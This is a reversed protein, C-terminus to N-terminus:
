NNGYRHSEKRQFAKAEGQGGVPNCTVLGGIIAHMQGASLVEHLAYMGKLYLLEDLGFALLIDVYCIAM